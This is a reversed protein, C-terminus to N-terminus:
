ADTSRVLVASDAESEVPGGMAAPAYFAMRDYATAIPVEIGEPGNRNKATFLRARNAQKEERNRCIPVVVDAVFLKKLSDSVHALEVVESQMGSRNVQTATQVPVKFEVGLGRLDTAIAGLDAYEDNYSTLPKLLDLYDVIVLDPKFGSNRLMTLHAKITNVSAQRPAYQKIILNNGYRRGWKNVVRLVDDPHRDIEMMPVRSIGSDYRKAIIDASLELTYYVTNFGGVIARKGCQALALSKGAGTGGMWIMMQEEELGGGIVDDLGTIGTPVRVKDDGLSRVRVREEAEEFYKLGMNSADDGVSRADDLIKGMADWDPEPAHMMESTRLLAKKTAQTKCFRVVENRIYDEALVPDELDEYVEKYSSIEEKKIRKSKAAKLLENKLVGMTPKQNYKEYHDVMAQFYWILVQDDFYAPQILDAAFVLFDWQQFILSLVEVQFDRDFDFKAM